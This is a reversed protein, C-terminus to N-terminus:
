KGGEAIKKSSAWSKAAQAEQEKKKQWDNAVSLAKEADGAFNEMFKERGWTPPLSDGHFKSKDVDLVYGLGHGPTTRNCYGLQEVSENWACVNTAEISSDDAMAIILREHRSSREVRKIGADSFRKLLGSDVIADRIAPQEPAFFNGTIKSSIVPYVLVTFILSLIAAPVVISKM